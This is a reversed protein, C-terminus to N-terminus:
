GQRRRLKLVGVAACALLVLSAPEPVIDVDFAEGSVMEGSNGLNSGIKLGINSVHNLLQVTSGTTYGSGNWFAANTFDLTLMVTSGAGVWTVSGNGNQYYRDTEGSDTWGTNMFLAAMFAKDTSPNHITMTYGDYASLDGGNGTAAVLGADNVPLDFGDGIVIDTWGGSDNTLTINFRTGPDLDTRGTLVGAADTPTGGEDVFNAADQLGADSIEWIAAAQVANGTALSMVVCVCCFVMIKNM